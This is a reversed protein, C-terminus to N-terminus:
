PRLEGPVNGMAPPEQRLAAGPAPLAAAIALVGPDLIYPPLVYADVPLYPLPDSYGGWGDTRSYPNIRIAFHLHPGTSGGSNGSLGIYQGRGVAQGKAVGITSLHAYISEGWSHRLLVFNGFGGQEFGSQIVEGDEVAVIVTGSPTLFDIGNHGVLPVGDYSYQSYFSPNEGWLQSIGYTGSFPAKLYTGTVKDPINTGPLRAPKALLPIGDPTREAVWGKVEGGPVLIGGIRWWTLGDSAEPGGLIVPVARPQLAGFVDDAPKNHIGPSRRVNVYDTTQILDGRAFGPIPTGGAIKQMLREGDPLAEAMWGRLLGGTGGALQVQWWLMGDAEGPGGQINGESGGPVETIVDDAPKATVGPSRRLRVLTLTQFRDGTQFTRAPLPVGIGPPAEIGTKDLLQEGDPLAEAMWGEIRQGDPLSGKVRWWTLNDAKEPGGLVTLVTGQPVIAVTDDAPKGTVGPSRRMRVATLTRVVDGPQFAGSPEVLPPSVPEYPALLPQGTSTYQALWGDRSQGDLPARVSWYPLGGAM